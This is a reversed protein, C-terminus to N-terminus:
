CSGGRPDRWRRPPPALRRGRWARPAKIIGSVRRCRNTGDEALMAAQGLVHRRQAILAIQEFDTEGRMRAHVQHQRQFLVELDFKGLPHQVPAGERADGRNPGADVLQDSRACSGGRLRRAVQEFGRLPDAALDRAGGRFGDVALGAERVLGDGRQALLPHEADEDGLLQAAAAGRDGFDAATHSISPRYRRTWRSSKRSAGSRLPRDPAGHAAPATRGGSGPRARALALPQDRRRRRLDADAAVQAAADARDLAISSADPDRFCAGTM